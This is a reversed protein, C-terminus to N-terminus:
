KGRTYDIKQFFDTINQDDSSYKLGFSGNQFSVSFEAMGGVLKREIGIITGLPFSKSQIDNEDIDIKILRLNTLIYVIVGKKNEDLNANLVLRAVPTDGNVTSVIFQSIQKKRSEDVKPSDLIFIDEIIANLAEEKTQEEESISM